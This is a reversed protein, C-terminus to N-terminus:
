VRVLISRLVQRPLLLPLLIIRVKIKVITMNAVDKEPMDPAADAATSAIAQELLQELAELRVREHAAHQDICLM